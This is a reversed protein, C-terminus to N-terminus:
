EKADASAASCQEGMAEAHTVGAVGLGYSVTGKDLGIGAGMTELEKVMNTFTAFCEHVSHGKGQKLKYFDHLLKRIALVLHAHAKYGYAVGKIIKILKIPNSNCRANQNNDNERINTRMAESCQGLVVSFFIALKDELKEVKNLYLIFCHDWKKIELALADEATDESPQMDPPSLNEIAKKIRDNHTRSIHGVLIEFTKTFCNAQEAKAGVYDFVHGQMGECEGM